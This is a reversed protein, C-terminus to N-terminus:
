IVVTLPNNDSINKVRNWGNELVTRKGGSQQYVTILLGGYEFSINEVIGQDGNAASWSVSKVAVLKYTQKFWVTSDKDLFFAELTKFPTGAACDGFLLPSLADAFRSVVFPNFMIKGAGAGSSQSGISLVQDVSNNCSIVPIFQSNKIDLQDTVAVIDKEHAGASTLALSNYDIFRLYISIPGDM